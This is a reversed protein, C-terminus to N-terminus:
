GQALLPNGPGFSVSTVSNKTAPAGLDVGNVTIDTAPANGLRLSVRQPDDFTQVAGPSLVGQYLVQGDSATAAVWCKTTTIRLVVHVGAEAVATSPNPEAPISAPPSSVPSSAIPSPSPSHTPTPSTVPVVAPTTAPASASASPSKKSHDLLGITAFVIIAVLTTGIAALGWHPSRKQATRTIARGSVETEYLQSTAQGDDKPGITADYEALLPVPDLGVLGALTRIHGRAYFDGGCLSFDDAEIARIVTARLRTKASMDDISLGADRRAGSLAQGISVNREEPNPPGSLRV